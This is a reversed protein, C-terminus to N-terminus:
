SGIPEHFIRLPLLDRGLPSPYDRYEGPKLPNRELHEAVAKLYPDIIKEEIEKITLIAM